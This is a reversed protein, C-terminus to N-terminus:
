KLKPPLLSKNLASDKECDIVFVKTGAMCNEFMWKVDEDLMRICGHSAPTGLKRYSTRSMTSVDPKSYLLSHFFYNGQIHVAYRVYTKYTKFYRWTKRSADSLTFEGEPTAHKKTGTSCIFQKEIVDFSGSSSESLITIVQNTRDVKIVYPMDYTFWDSVYIGETSGALKDDDDNKDQKTDAKEVTTASEVPAPTSVPEDYNPYYTVALASVPCLTFLLVLILLSSLLKKM